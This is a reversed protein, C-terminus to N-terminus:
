MVNFSPQITVGDTGSSIGYPSELKMMRQELKKLQREIRTLRDNWQYMMNQDNVGGMDQYSGPMVNSQDATPFNSPMGPYQQGFQQPMNPMGTPMGTNPMGPNQYFFMNRDKNM